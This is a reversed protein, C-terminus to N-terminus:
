FDGCIEKWMKCLHERHKTVTHLAQRVERPKMRYIDRIEPEGDRCNLNIITENGGSFVHVHAPVHDEFYILIAYGDIRLVTPM